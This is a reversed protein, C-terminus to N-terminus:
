VLASPLFSNNKGKSLLKRFKQTTALQLDPDDSFLMEVMERTIVGEQFCAFSVSCPNWKVSLCWLGQCGVMIKHKALLGFTCIQSRLVNNVEQCVKGTWQLLIQLTRLLSFAFVEWTQWSEATGVTLDIWLCSWLLAGVGCTTSSVYPDVLLSDFMSADENIM